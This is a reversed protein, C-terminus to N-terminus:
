EISESSEFSRARQLIAAGEKRDQLREQTGCEEAVRNEKRCRQQDDCAKSGKRRRALGRRGPLPRDAQRAFLGAHFSQFPACRSEHSM